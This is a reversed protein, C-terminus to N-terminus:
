GPSVRLQLQQTAAWTMTGGLVTTSSAVTALATRIAVVIARMGFSGRRTPGGRDLVVAISLASIKRASERFPLRFVSHVTM